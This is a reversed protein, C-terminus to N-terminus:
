QWHGSSMWHRTAISHLLRLQLSLKLRSVQWFVYDLVRGGVAPQLYFGFLPIIEAVRLCQEILKVNSAAGLAALSLLGADYGLESATAAEKVAQPTLGCVGAVKVLTRDNELEFTRVTEWALQLVPELLCFRPERIAFQTTHVGVAVGGAGAACYYRTLKRHLM